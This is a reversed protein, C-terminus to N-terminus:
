GGPRPPAAVGMWANIESALMQAHRLSLKAHTSIVWRVSEDTAVLLPVRKAILMEEPLEGSALALNYHKKTTTQDPGSKPALEVYAFRFKDLDRVLNRARMFGWEIPIVPYTTLTVTGSIRDFIVRLHQSGFLGVLLIGIGLVFLLTRAHEVDSTINLVALTLLGIGALSVLAASVWSPEFLVLTDADHRIKM